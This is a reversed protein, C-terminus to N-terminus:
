IVRTNTRLAELLVKPNGIYLIMDNIFLSLKVRGKEKPNKKIQNSHIAILFIHIAFPLITTQPHRVFLQSFFILSLCLLLPFIYGDSHLTGFFLLFFYSLRETILAFFYLFIISHSLSSIEELFNSIGLFYKMCLHAFYLVSVTM